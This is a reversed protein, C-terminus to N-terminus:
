DMHRPSEDGTQPPQTGTRADNKRTYETLFAVLDVIETFYRRQQTMLHEVSGRWETSQQNGHGRSEFWLNVLFADKQRAM